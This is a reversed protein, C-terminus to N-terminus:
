ISVGLHEFVLKKFDEVLKEITIFEYLVETENIHIHDSKPHHNDMLISKGTKTDVCILGYKVRSPYRKSDNVEHLTMEVVFRDQIRFKEHSRLIAKM